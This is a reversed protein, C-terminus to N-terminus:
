IHLLFISISYWLLSRGREYGTRNVDVIEQNRQVGDTINTSRFWISGRNQSNTFSFFGFKM